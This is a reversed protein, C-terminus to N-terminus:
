FVSFRRGYIKLRFIGRKSTRYRSRRLYGSGSFKGIPCSRIRRHRANSRTLIGTRAREGERCCAGLPRRTNDHGRGIWGPLKAARKEGGPTADGRRFWGHPGRRNGLGVTPRNSRLRDPRRLNSSDNFIPGPFQDVIEGRDDGGALIHRGLRGVLEGVHVRNLNEPWSRYKMIRNWGPLSNRVGVYPPKLDRKQDM